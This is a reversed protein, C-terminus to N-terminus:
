ATLSSQWVAPVTAKSPCNKTLLAAWSARVKKIARQINDNPMSIGKAKEIAVRLSANYEPDGGDKAVVTIAKQMNRSCPREKLTRRRKEAPSQVTSGM